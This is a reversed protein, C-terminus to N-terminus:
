TLPRVVVAAGSAVDPVILSSSTYVAHHFHKTAEHVRGNDAALM